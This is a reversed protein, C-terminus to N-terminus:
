DLSRVEIKKARCRVSKAAGIVWAMWSTAGREMSAKVARHGARGLHRAVHLRHGPFILGQHWGLYGRSSAVRGGPVVAPSPPML